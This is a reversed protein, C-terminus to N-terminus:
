AKFRFAPEVQQGLKVKRIDAAARRLRERAQALEDPPAAPQARLPAAATMVALQRRTLKM